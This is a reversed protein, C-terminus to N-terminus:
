ESAFRLLAAPTAVPDGASPLALGLIGQGPIVRLIQIAWLRSSPSRSLGLESWPLAWEATWGQETAAHGLWYRPKWTTDGACDQTSVGQRNVCFRLCTQGDRDLDLLIQVHDQGYAYANHARADAPRPPLHGHPYDAPYSCRVAMYLYQDDWSFYAHTLWHHDPATLLGALKQCTIAASDKWCTDELSGDLLPRSDTRRASQIALPPVAFRQPEVLWVESALLARAADTAAFATAQEPMSPLWRRALQVAQSTLGLHRRVALLSLRLTPDEAQLPGWAWWRGETHLHHQLRAAVDAIEKAQAMPVTVSTKPSKVDLSLAHTNKALDATASTLGLRWRTEEATEYRLLWRSAALAAPHGPWQEVVWHHLLRAQPWRGAQQCREALLVAQLPAEEEPLQQLFRQCANLWAALDQTQSLPQSCIEELKRRVVLWQRRQTLEEDDSSTIPLSTAPPARRAAGSPTIELDQWVQASSPVASTASVTPAAPTTSTPGSAAPRTHLRHAVLWWGRRPWPWRELQRIAVAALDAPAAAILPHFSTTELLDDIHPPDANVTLPLPESGLPTLAYLKRPAWPELGLLQLQEPFCKPDAARCFAEYVAHLALRDEAPGYVDLPDALVIEPRWQRITWVLRRLLLQAASGGHYQDWFALIQRPSLHRAHLPLPFAWERRLVTGGCNRWAQRWREEQAQEQWGETREQACTLVVAACRYGQGGGWVVLHELPLHAARAHVCVAALRTGGVRQIMWHAGGDTTAYIVGLEGVLWGVRDTLFYAGYVTLPLPLEQRQWQQGADSSHLVVRGVQGAVWVHKGFAACARFDCVALAARPWDPSISQWSHGGDNSRYIAGGDGALYWVAQESTQGNCAVAYWNRLALRDAEGRQCHGRIGDWRGWRGGLGAFVGVPADPRFAAARCLPALEGAVPYWTRGGDDTQFLGTSFAPNGDGWAVGHREDFFRVGHLPPLQNWCLEEWHWGGDRTHLVVGVPGLGFEERRGVIWGTYPTLFHVGRLSARTGSKQREWHQGGDVTHWIVGEDGVAWGEDADVFHVGYLTADEYFASAGGRATTMPTSWAWGGVVAAAVLVVVGTVGLVPGNATVRWRYACLGRWLFFLSASIEPELPRHMTSRRQKNVTQVGHHEAAAVVSKM